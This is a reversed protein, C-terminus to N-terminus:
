WKPARPLGTRVGELNEDISFVTGCKPCKVRTSTGVEACGFLFIALFTLALFIGSWKSM